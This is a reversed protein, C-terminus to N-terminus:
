GRLVFRQTKAEARVLLHLDRTGDRALDFAGSSNDRGGLRVLALELDRQAATVRPRDLGDDFVLHRGALSRFDLDLQEGDRCRRAFAIQAVPAAHEGPVEFRRGALRLFDLEAPPQAPRAVLDDGVLRAPRSVSATVDGEPQYIWGRWHSAVGSRM